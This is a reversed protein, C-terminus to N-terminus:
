AEDSKGKPTRRPPPTIKDAVVALVQEALSNVGDQRGRLEGLDIAMNLLKQNVEGHKEECQDLKTTLRKEVNLNQTHLVRWLTGIAGILAAFVAALTLPNQIVGDMM